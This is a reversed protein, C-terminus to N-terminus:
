DRSKVFWGIVMTPANEIPTTITVTSFYLADFGGISDNLNKPENVTTEFMDIPIFYYLAAFCVILGFDLLQQCDSSYGSTGRRHGDASQRQSTAAM